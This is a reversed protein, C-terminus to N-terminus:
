PIAKEACFRGSEGLQKRWACWWRLRELIQFCSARRQSLYRHAEDPVVHRRIAGLKGRFLTAM